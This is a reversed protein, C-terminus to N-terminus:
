YRSRLNGIVMEDTVVVRALSTPATTKRETPGPRVTEVDLLDEELKKQKTQIDDTITKVEGFKELLKAEIVGTLESAFDAISTAILAKVEDLTAGVPAEPTEDAKVVPTEGEGTPTTPDVVPTTPEESPPTEAGKDEGEPPKTDEPAPVEPTEPTPTEEPPTDTPTAPVDETAPPVADEGEGEGEGHENPAGKKQIALAKFKKTEEAFFKKAVQFLAFPNAPITVVSIEVLDVKTIIRVVDKKDMDEWTYGPMLGEDKKYIVHGM